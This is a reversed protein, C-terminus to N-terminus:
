LLGMERWTASRCVCLVFGQRCAAWMPHQPPKPGRLLSASARPSQGRSLALMFPQFECLQLNGPAQCLGWRMHDSPGGAGEVSVHQPRQTCMSFPGYGTSLNQSVLAQPFSSLVHLERCELSGSPPCHAQLPRCPISAGVCRSHPCTFPDAVSDTLPHPGLPPALGPRWCRPLFSVQFVSTGLEAGPSGLKFPLLM